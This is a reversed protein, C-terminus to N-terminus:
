LVWGLSLNGVRPRRREPESYTTVRSIQVCDESGGVGVGVGHGRGNGNGCGCVCGGDDDFGGIEGEIERM